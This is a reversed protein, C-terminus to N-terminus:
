SRIKTLIWTVAFPDSSRHKPEMCSSRDPFITPSGSSFGPRVRAQCGLWCPRVTERPHLFSRAPSGLALFDARETRRTPLPITTLTSVSAGACSRFSDAVSVGDVRSLRVEGRSLPNASGNTSEAARRWM